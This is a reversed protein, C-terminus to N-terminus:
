IFTGPVKVVIRFWEENVEAFLQGKISKVIRECLSLGIGAHGTGGAASADGRQFRKFILGLDSESMGPNSNSISIVLLEGELQMTIEIEGGHPVYSVANELLNSAIIEFLSSSISFSEPAKSLDWSVKLNREAAIDFYPKWCKRLLRSPVIEQAEFEETGSDLRALMLLNGVVGEMQTQISLARTLTLEDEMPNRITGLALELQAKLGALPNRLEHAANATFQREREIAAAVRDLLHNLCDIVPQVESPADKLFIKSSVAGIATSEIQASLEGMPHLANRVIVTTAVLSFGAVVIGIGALLQRLHRLSKDIGARDRAVVLHIKVPESIESGPGNSQAIQEPTFAMGMCRGRRGNPLNCDFAKFSDEDDLGVLPLDNVLGSSRYDGRGDHWRFQFFDPDDPDHFRDLVPGSVRFAIREGNQVAAIQQYALKDKLFHDVEEYLHKKVLTYSLGAGFFIVFISGAFLATLM